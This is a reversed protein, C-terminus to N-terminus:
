LSVFVLTACISVVIGIIRGYRWRRDHFPSLQPPEMKWHKEAISSLQLDHEFSDPSDRMTPLFPMNEM